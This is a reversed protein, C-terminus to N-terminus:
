KYITISVYNVSGSTAGFDIYMEENATYTANTISGDDFTASTGCTIDESSNASADEIALTKSTGGDVKCAIRSITGGDGRLPLPMLGGSIFAESTSAITRSWVIQTTTGTGGNAQPLVGTVDAALDVSGVVIADGTLTVYDPTGSKSLNTNSSIDICNTCTLTSTDLNVTFGSGTSGSTFTDGAEWFQTVDSLLTYLNAETIDGATVTVVDVSGLATELESETDIDATVGSLQGYLGNTYGSVDAELGGNEHPLTGTFSLSGLALTGSNITDGAEWFQTVDSLAAYLGAENSLITQFTSDAASISYFDTGAELDLLTRMAAYSAAGLLSQVNVSPTIGAYTTLDADYAQVLSGIDASDLYAAATNEAETWVDFCSEVAGSADVGLPASGASCNAGNAALATATDANGVLAGYLTTASIATTSALDVTLKNTADDYTFASEAGVTSASTGYIIYTDAIATSTSLGSGGSATNDVGDCLDASGTIAVCLEPGSNFTFGGTGSDYTVIDDDAEANTADLDAALLSDTLSLKSYVIGASANVDANVIVGSAIATTNAGASATIDGTLAARRLVNSSVELSTDDISTISTDDTMIYRTTDAGNVDPFLYLQEATDATSGECIFGGGAATKSFYCEDVLLAPNAALTTGFNIDGFAITDDLIEATAVGGTTIEAAAVSDTDFSCNTGNCTFDGFDASALDDPQIEGVTIQQTSLTLYDQGALTVANHLESDRAISSDIYAESITSSSTVTGNDVVTVIDGATWPSTTSIGGSAGGTPWATKCSDGTLCLEDFTGRLFALSSTGIEYASDTVPYIHRMPTSNPGGFQGEVAVVENDQPTDQVEIKSVGYLGLTIFLALAACIILETIQTFGKNYM